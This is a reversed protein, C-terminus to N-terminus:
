SYEAVGIRELEDRQGRDMALTLDLIVAYARGFVEREESTLVGEVVGGM